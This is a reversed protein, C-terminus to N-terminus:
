CNHRTSSTTDCCRGPGLNWYKGGRVDYIHKIYIRTVKVNQLSDEYLSMLFSRTSGSETNHTLSASGVDKRGCAQHWKKSMPDLMGDRGKFAGAMNTSMFSLQQWFRWVQKASNKQRM